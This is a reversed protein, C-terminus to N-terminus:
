NAELSTLQDSDVIKKENISYTLILFILSDNFTTTIVHRELSIVQDLWTCNLYIFTCSIQAQQSNTLLIVFFRNCAYISEIVSITGECTEPFSNLQQPDIEWTSLRSFFIHLSHCTINVNDFLPYAPILM